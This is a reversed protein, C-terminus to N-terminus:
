RRSRPWFLGSARRAVHREFESIALPKEDFGELAFRWRDEAAIVVEAALWESEPHSSVHLFVRYRTVLESTHRSQDLEGPAQSPETAPRIGIWVTSDGRGLVAAWPWYNATGGLSIVLQKFEEPDFDDGFTLVAIHKVM